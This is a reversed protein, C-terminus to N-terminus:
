RILIQYTSSRKMKPLLPHIQFYFFNNVILFRKLLCGNLFPYTTDIIVPEREHEYKNKENFRINFVHDGIYKCMFFIKVYIFYVDDIGRRELLYQTLFAYERCVGFGIKLYENINITKEDENKDKAIIGLFNKNFTQYIKQNYQGFKLAKRLAIQITIIDNDNDSNYQFKLKNFFQVLIKNNKEIYFNPQTGGVISSGEIILSDNDDNDNVYQFLKNKKIKMKIDEFNTYDDSKNKTFTM